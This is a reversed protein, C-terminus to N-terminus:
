LACPSPQRARFSLSLSVKERPTAAQMPSASAAVPAGAAFRRAICHPLRRSARLLALRMYRHVIPSSQASCALQPRAPRFSPQKLKAASHMSAHNPLLLGPPQPGALQRWRARRSASRKGCSRNCCAQEKLRSQRQARGGGRTMHRAAALSPRKGAQEAAQQSRRDLHRDALVLPNGLPLLAALLLHLNIGPPRQDRAKFTPRSFRASGGQLTSGKELFSQYSMLAGVINLTRLM